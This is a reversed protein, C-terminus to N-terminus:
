EDKEPDDGPSFALANGRSHCQEAGETAVSKASPEKGRTTTAAPVHGPSYTTSHATMSRDPRPGEAHGCEPGCGGRSSNTSRLRIVWLDYAHRDQQVSACFGPDHEDWSDGCEPCKERDTTM